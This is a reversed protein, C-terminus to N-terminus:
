RGHRSPSACTGPGSGRQNGPWISHRNHAVRYLWAPVDEISDHGHNRVQHHFRLFVEQVIDEARERPCRLLVIVYRLLPSEFSEVM